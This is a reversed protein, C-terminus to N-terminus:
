QERLSRLEALIRRTEHEMSWSSCIEETRAIFLRKLVAPANSAACGFMFLWLRQEEALWLIERGHRRSLRVAMAPEGRQMELRVLCSEVEFGDAAALLAEVADCFSSRGSPARRLLGTTQSEVTEVDADFPRMFSTGQLADVIRKAGADSVDKPIITSAGLRTLALAQAARLRLGHERIVARLSPRGLARVEAVTRCLRVYDAPDNFPLVLTAADSSRVVDLADAIKATDEVRLVSEVPTLDDADRLPSEAQANLTGRGAWRLSFSERASAGEANFWHRVELVPGGHSPKAIAFGAFNEAVLRLAFYERAAHPTPTFLALVTHDREAAWNTYGQATEAAARSESLMFLADAQDIVILADRQPFIRELQALFGEVGCRFLHKPAESAMQFIALRDARLYSDLDFGALRAKRLLMAPDSPTLLSTCKGAQMSAELAGAGLAVRMAQQDCAIGYVMGNALRTIRSPLGGVGLRAEHAPVGSRVATQIAADVAAEPGPLYAFAPAEHGM